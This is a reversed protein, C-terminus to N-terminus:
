TVHSDNIISSFGFMLLGSSYLFVVVNHLHITANQSQHMMPQNEFADPPPNMAFLLQLKM